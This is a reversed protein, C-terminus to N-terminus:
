DATPDAVQGIFLPTGTVTHRIVFAFPHDARVVVDPELPGSEALGIGTVGASAAEADATGATTAHLM